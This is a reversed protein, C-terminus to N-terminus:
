LSVAHNEDLLLYEKLQKVFGMRRDRDDDSRMARKMLVSLRSDDSFPKNGGVPVCVPVAELTPCSNYYRCKLIVICFM